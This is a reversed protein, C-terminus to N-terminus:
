AAPVPVPRRLSSEGARWRGLVHEAFRAEAALVARAGFLVDRALAPEQRVLGGALDHAALQEHVSDAEVHEDFFGAADGAGLRRLAAAYRRMPESSTMELVALHGVIAGRWRRHLGFLSMLNVTALTVGPLADLYAGYRPDLDLAAMTTAFLTSHMWGPDGGGYEDSQIEVLAAKAPGDLRPIAWTHPDAEKLHYASRHVVFEAFQERTGERLLHRSLSPGDDERVLAFLQEAVDEPGVSTDAPPGLADAFGCELERRCALLGPEWEWADDVDAFSRYHLEYMVYLALHLDDGVLPDDAPAPLAVRGEPPRRLFDLLAESVPGRPEPLRM